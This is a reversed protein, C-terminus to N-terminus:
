HMFIWIGCGVVCMATVVPVSREVFWDKMNFEGYNSKVKYSMVFVGNKM